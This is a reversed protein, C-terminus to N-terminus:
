GGAGVQLRESVRDFISNWRHVAVNVSVNEEVHQRGNAGLRRREASDAALRGVAVALGEADGPAVVVGCDADEILRAADSGKSLAAVVPRAAAMLSLIKSPVVPTRVDARLSVLGIDVADLLASYRERTQMPRFRLNTLGSARGELASRRVGDGVILWTVGPDDSLRAAEVLVDLDQSYGIVGAFCAVIGDGLRWEDRLRSGLGTGADILALDVWNPVVSAHRAEVGRTVVHAFNGASHVATHAARSYVFREIAEYARIVARSRLLGLDVMTRPVLDQVNLVFPTRRLAGVLCAALGNPLPPSYVVVVDPREVGLAAIALAVASAFEALARAPLWTGMRPTRVRVVRMGELREVVRLGGYPRRAGLVHYGPMPTVVTVRAGSAALAAGLDHLLNAASGSDPPFHPALLLVHRARLKSSRSNGSRRVSSWSRTQGRRKANIEGLSV